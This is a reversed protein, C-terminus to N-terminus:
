GPGRDARALPRATATSPILAATALDADTRDAPKSDVPREVTQAAVARSPSHRARDGDTPRTPSTPRTLTPIELPIRDDGLRLAAPRRAAPGGPATWRSPPQGAGSPPSREHGATTSGDRCTASRSRGCNPDRRPWGSAMPQGPGAPRGRRRPGGEGLRSDAIQALSYRGRHRPRRWCPPGCLRLRTRISWTWIM